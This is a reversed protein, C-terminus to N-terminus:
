IYFPFEMSFIKALTQLEEVSFKSAEDVTKISNNLYLRSGTFDYQGLSKYIGDASIEFKEYAYKTCGDFGKSLSKNIEIVKVYLSILQFSDTNPAILPTKFSCYEYLEEGSYDKKFVHRGTFMINHMLSHKEEPSLAYKNYVDSYVKLVKGSTIDSPTSVKIKM